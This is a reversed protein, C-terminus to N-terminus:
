FGSNRQAQFALLSVRTSCSLNCEAVMHIEILTKSQMKIPHNTSMKQSENAQKKDHREKGSAEPHQRSFYLEKRNKKCTKLYIQQLNHPKKV